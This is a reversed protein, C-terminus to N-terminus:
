RGLCTAVWVLALACLASSLTRTWPPLVGGAAAFRKARYVGVFQTDFVAWVVLVGAMSFRSALTLADALTVVNNM